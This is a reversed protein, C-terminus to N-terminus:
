YGPPQPRALARDVVTAVQTTQFPKFLISDVHRAAPSALMKQDRWGTVLIVPTEPSLTKIAGAVWWGNMGPMVLDTFVLDHRDVQFMSLGEAGSAAQSVLHGQSALIEVLMERVEPEDDIVLIKMPRALPAAPIADPAAMAAFPLSITVTTGHGPISEISLEGGHRKIIGYTVSLGLGTSRPGKTTFFPELARQEVEESMGVGTDAVSCHVRQDSAWTKVTIQGGRPLADVANFLLNMFVERLAAPDGAVAPIQGPELVAEIQIGRVQARAQWLSRALELVDQALQNLDVPVAEAVPQARSFEQVRRVVEAGDLTTREVIELVRHIEPEQVKARLLQIRGLIVALLNNLHHAIGSAMEGVAQLTEGRVLQEQTRRVEEYSRKLEEFLRAREIAIAAQDALLNMLEKEEPTFPRRDGFVISLVGVVQDGTLLPLGAFAHVDAERALRQNLWRSDEQVDLIYEPARSEFVRGVLGQGYAIAPFDTRLEEYRPDLGFSGQARVVRDGPDDVWVRAMKAGLLTTAGEAVAHFVEQSDSASTILRTLASLTTLKQAREEVGRYLRANRIAIAAPVSLLEALVVEEPSFVRRQRSMVVLTGVPAGELLLPVGLFSVLGEAMMWERNQVRPDAQLDPLILSAGHAMIWGVLGEGPSLQRRYEGPQRTVGAQSKLRFEGPAGEEIWIRVVDGGLRARVLETLRQFVESLDLTGTLLRVAESLAALEGSTREPAELATPGRDANRSM